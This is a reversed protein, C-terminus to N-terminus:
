QSAPLSPVSPPASRTEQRNPPLLSTTFPLLQSVFEGLRPLKEQSM